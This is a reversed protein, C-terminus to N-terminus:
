AMQNVLGKSSRRLLITTLQMMKHIDCKTSSLDSCQNQKVAKCGIEHMLELSAMLVIAQFICSFICTIKSNESPKELGIENVLSCCNPLFYLISADHNQASAIFMFIQLNRQM